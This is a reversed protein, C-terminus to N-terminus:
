MKDMNLGGTVTRRRGSAAEKESQSILWFGYVRFAFIPELQNVCWKKKTKECNKSLKAAM